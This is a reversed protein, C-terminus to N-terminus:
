ASVLWFANAPRSYPIFYNAYTRGLEDAHPSVVDPKRFTMCSGEVIDNVINLDDEQELPDEILITWQAFKMVARLRALYQFFFSRSICCRITLLM